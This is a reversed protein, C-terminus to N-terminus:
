MCSRESSMLRVPFIICLCLDDQRIMWVLFWRTQIRLEAVGPLTRTAILREMDLRRQM